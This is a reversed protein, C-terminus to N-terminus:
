GFILLPLIGSLTGMIFLTSKYQIISFLVRLIPLRQNNQMFFVQAKVSMSSSTTMAMKAPKNELLEEQSLILYLKAKKM